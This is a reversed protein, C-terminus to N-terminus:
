NINRDARSTILGSDMENAKKGLHLISPMISKPHCYPFVGGIKLWVNQVSIIMNSFFLGFIRGFIHSLFKCMGVPLHRM